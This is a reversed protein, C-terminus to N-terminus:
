AFLYHITIEEGETLLSKYMIVSDETYNGQHCVNEIIGAHEIFAPKLNAPLSVVCQYFRNVQELMTNLNGDFTFEYSQKDLPFKLFDDRKSNWRRYVGRVFLKM